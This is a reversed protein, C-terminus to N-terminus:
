PPAMFGVVVTCLKGTRPQVTSCNIQTSGQMNTATLRLSYVGDALLPSFDTSIQDVSVTNEVVETGIEYAVTVATLNQGGTHVFQWM